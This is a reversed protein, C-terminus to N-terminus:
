SLAGTKKEADERTKREAYLKKRVEDAVQNAALKRLTKIFYVDTQHDKRPDMHMIENALVYKQSPVDVGPICAGSIIRDSWEEWETMGMPLPRLESLQESIIEKSTDEDNKVKLM